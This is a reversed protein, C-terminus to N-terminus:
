HLTDLWWWGGFAIVAFSAATALLAITRAAIRRPRRIADHTAANLATGLAVVRVLQGADAFRRWTAALEEYARAHRPHANRWAEFRARDEASVNVANLRAIWESAEREAEEISPLRHLDAM